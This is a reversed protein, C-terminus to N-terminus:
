PRGQLLLFQLLILEPIAERCGNCRNKETIGACQGRLMFWGCPVEQPCHVVFTFYETENIELKWDQAHYWTRVQSFLTKLARARAKPHM